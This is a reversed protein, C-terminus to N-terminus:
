VEDPLRKKPHVLKCPANRSEDPSHIKIDSDVKASAACGARLFVPWEPTYPINSGSDWVFSVNQFQIRDVENKLSVVRKGQLSCLASRGKGAM